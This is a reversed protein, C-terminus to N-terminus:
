EVRITAKVQEEPVTITVKGDENWDEPSEIKIGYATLVDEERDYESIDFVTTTVNDKTRTITSDSNLMLGSDGLIVSIGLLNEDDDYIGTANIRVEDYEDNGNIFGESDDSTVKTYDTKNVFTYEIENEETISDFSIKLFDNPLTVSEGIGLAKYDEDEDISDRTVDTTVGFYPKVGNDMIFIFEENDEIFEENNELTKLTEGEAGIYFEVKDGITEGAENDLIEKVIIGVGALEDDEGEELSSTIEGNVIFKVKPTLTGGIYDVTVEYDKDGVRITQTEGEAMIHKTGDRVTITTNTIEVIELDKGLFNIELPEEKNVLSTTFEDDFMYKYTIKGADTQLYPKTEMEAEGDNDGSVIVKGDFLVEEHIDYDEGDFEIENDQLKDVQRDTFIESISTELEQEDVEYGGLSTVSTELQKVEEQAKKYDELILKDAELQAKEAELTIMAQEATEKGQLLSDAVDNKTLLKDKLEGVENLAVDKAINLEAIKDNAEELQTNSCGALGLSGVALTGICVGAMIKKMKGM